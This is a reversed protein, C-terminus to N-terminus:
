RRRRLVALGGLALLSLSAPEPVPDYYYTITATASASTNFLTTLNGAGSAFSTGMAKVPLNISGLGTFLVLDSAPPPSIFTDSDSGSLNSYTKGSTGGFDISGDFASVNDVTSAVPIVVGLVSLDPRQLEIQAQLNMTVTAPSADLSEFRAAGEVYGGLDLEIQTLTGLAPNFQPVSISDTWNTSSLAINFPGHSISAAQVTAAFGLATILVATFRKM